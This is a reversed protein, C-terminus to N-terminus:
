LGSRGGGGVRQVVDARLPSRRLSTALRHDHSAPTGRRADEVAAHGDARGGRLCQWQLRRFVPSAEGQCRREDVAATDPKFSSRRRRPVDLARVGYRFGTRVRHRGPQRRVGCRRRRDTAFASADRRPVCFGVQTRATPHRARHARCAARRRLADRRADHELRGAAAPAQLRVTCSGRRLTEVRGQQERGALRGGPIGRAFTARGGDVGLGAGAHRRVRARRPDRYTRDDPFQDFASRSARRGRSLDLLLNQLSRGTSSASRSGGRSDRRRCIRLRPVLRARSTKGDFSGVPNTAGCCM